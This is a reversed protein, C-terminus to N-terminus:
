DVRRQFAEHFHTKDIVVISSEANARASAVSADVVVEFALVLQGRQDILFAYEVESPNIAASPSCDLGRSLM